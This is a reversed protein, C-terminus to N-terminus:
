PVLRDVMARFEREFVHYPVTASVIDHRSNRTYCAYIDGRETELRVQIEGLSDSEVWFRNHEVDVAPITLCESTIKARM